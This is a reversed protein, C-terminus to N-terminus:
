TQQMQMIELRHERHFGEVRVDRDFPSFAKFSRYIHGYMDFYVFQLSVTYFIKGCFICRKNM